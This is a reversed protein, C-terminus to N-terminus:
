IVEGIRKEGKEGEFEINFLCSNIWFFVLIPTTYTKVGQFVNESDFTVLNVRDFNWPTNGRFWWYM